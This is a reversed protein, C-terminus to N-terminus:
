ARPDFNNLDTTSPKEDLVILSPANISGNEKKEDETEITFGKAEAEHEHDDEKKHSGIFHEEDVLSPEEPQYLHFYGVKWDAFWKLFPLKERLKESKMAYVGGVVCIVIVAIPVLVAAAILGKNNNLVTVITSPCDYTDPQYKTSVGGTCTDGATRRYGKSVQYKDGEPCVLPPDNTPVFGEVPQCVGGDVVREYDFDCEFDEEDCTCNILSKIPERDENNFCLSSQKRRSYTIQHGLLCQLGEKNVRGDTPAYDEYDSDVCDRTFIQSFDLSIIVPETSSNGVRSGILMFRESVSSPETIINDVSILDGAPLNYRRLPTLGQDLTYYIHDTLEDYPAMVIIGGHDGFEYIMNGKILENFTLGGDRSLWTSSAAPDISLSEGTNGVGLILGVSLDTSYLPAFVSTTSEVHLHLSCKGTCVIPNGNADKLPRIYKWNNGNDSSLRSKFIPKVGPGLYQWNDIVNAIYVGEISQVPTFDFYPFSKSVHELSTTYKIGSADSTYVNGWSGHDVGMFISGSADDIIRYGNYKLDSGLPWQTVYFRKEALNIDPSVKIITGSDTMTAVFVQHQLFLFQYGGDVLTNFTRGFDDTYGFQTKQGSPQIIMYIRQLPVNGQGADGWSFSAVNDTVKGWKLGFDETLFLTRYLGVYGSALGWDEEVKNWSIVNLSPGSAIATWTIGGDTTSWSTAGRGRIYVQNTKNRNPYIISPEMGPNTANVLQSTIDNWGAGTSDTRYVKRDTTILLAISTNVWEFDQIDFNFEHSTIQQGQIEGLLFFLLGVYLLLRKM